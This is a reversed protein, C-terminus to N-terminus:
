SCKSAKFRLFIINFRMLINQKTKNQKTKKPPPLQNINQKKKIFFIHVFHTYNKYDFRLFKFLNHCFINVIDIFVLNSNFAVIM